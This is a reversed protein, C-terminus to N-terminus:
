LNTIEYYIIQDYVLNETRKLEKNNFTYIAKGEGNLRKSLWNEFDAAEKTTLTYEKEFGDDMQIRILVNKSEVVPEDTSPEDTSPEDTSPEDTSPEDTSPEDTSPEDTSPEDTSPGDTSPEDTSPEDTSPEDTPPAETYNAPYVNFEFVQNDVNSRNHIAVKSVDVLSIDEPLKELTGDKVTATYTKLIQNSSNLFYVNIQSDPSDTKLRIYGIKSPDTLTWVLHDMRTAGSDYRELIHFTSDDNDTAATIEDKKLDYSKVGIGKLGIKSDILGGSYDITTSKSEEENAFSHISYSLSLFAIIVISVVFIRKFM